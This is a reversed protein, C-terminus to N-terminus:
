IEIMWITLVLNAFHDVYWIQDLVPIDSTVVIQCEYKMFKIVVLRLHPYLPPKGFQTGWGVDLLTINNSIYSSLGIAMGLPM